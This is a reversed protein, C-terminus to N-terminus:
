YRCGNCILVTPVSQGQNFNAMPAAPSSPLPNACGGTALLAVLLLSAFQFLLNNM